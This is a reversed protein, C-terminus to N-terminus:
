AGGRGAFFRLVHPWIDALAAADARPTGGSGGAAGTAPLAPLAIGIGHGAGDYVLGRHPFRFGRPGRVTV